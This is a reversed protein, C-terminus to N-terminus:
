SASIPSAMAISKVGSWSSSVKSFLNLSHFISSPLNALRHFAFVDNTSAAQGPIESHPGDNIFQIQLNRPSTSKREKAPVTRAFRRDYSHQQSQQLRRPAGALYQTTVNARQRRIDPRPNAIEGLLMLEIPPHTHLLAFLKLRSKIRAPILLDKTSDDFM